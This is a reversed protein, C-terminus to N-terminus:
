PARDLAAAIQWISEGAARRSAIACREELCFHGYVRGM